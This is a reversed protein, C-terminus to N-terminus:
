ISIPKEYLEIFRLLPHVDLSIYQRCLISTAKQRKTHTQHNKDFALATVHKM